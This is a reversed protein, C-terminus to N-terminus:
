GTACPSALGSLRAAVNCRRWCSTARPCRTAKAPVSLTSAPASTCVADVGVGLFLATNM